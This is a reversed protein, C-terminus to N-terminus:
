GSVQSLREDEEFPIRLIAGVRIPRTKGAKIWRFFTADSIGWRKQFEHRTYGVPGFRKDTRDAVCESSNNM